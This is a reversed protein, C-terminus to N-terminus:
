VEYEILSDDLYIFSKLCPNLKMVQFKSDIKVFRYTGLCELFWDLFVTVAKYGNIWGIFIIIIYSYFHTDIMM